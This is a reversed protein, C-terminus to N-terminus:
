EEVEWRLMRPELGEYGKRIRETVEKDIAVKVYNGRIEPIM